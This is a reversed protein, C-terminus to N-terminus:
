GSDADCDTCVLDSPLAATGSWHMRGAAILRCVIGRNVVSWQSGPKRPRFRIGYRDQDLGKTQVDVWGWCLAEHLLDDFTVTQKGSTKKFIVVWCESEAQHGRELWRQWGAVDDVELQHPFM